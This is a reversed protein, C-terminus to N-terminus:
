SAGGASRAGAAARAGAVPRAGAAARPRGGAGLAAALARLRPQATGIANLWELAPRASAPHNAALAAELLARADAPERQIEWNAAALRLARAPDHEVHLAFRSEERQHVTDGRERSAAFRAAVTAAAGDRSAGGGSEPRRGPTAEALALRLLLGDDDEHGRVLAAVEGARGADLLLDCLAAMAGRDSPALALVSRLLAEAGREDGESRALDALVARGWAAEAPGAAQDLLAALETAAGAARGTLGLLPARCAALVFPSALGALRACSALGEDYRAKVGLIVARTLLAQALIAQTPQPALPRDAEDRPGVLRELDVLAADFEHRAQRITARLLVVEPPPSAESWWPALAAEARGLFRPDAGDRAAQLDLRALRVAADLDRPAQRIQARLREVDRAAPDAGRPPVRAVVADNEGAARALSIIAAEPRRAREWATGAAISALTAGVLVAAARRQSRESRTSM